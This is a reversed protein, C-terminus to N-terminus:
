GGSWINGGQERRLQSFFLFFSVLSPGHLMWWAMTTGQSRPLFLAPPFGFASSESNMKWMGQYKYLGTPPHCLPLPLGSDLLSLSDPACLPGNHGERDGEEEGVRLM